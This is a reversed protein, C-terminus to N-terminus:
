KVTELIAHGVANAVDTALVGYQGHEAEALRGALGHVYVAAVAAFDPNIGQAMFATIIGTLVDGSGPTALAPTGTSNFFTRGDPRVVATYRGKLVIIVKLRRAEEIAKLLRAEATPQAGFIRDFEGAHPTLVSGEPIFNLLVQRRSICNLADADLVVPRKHTRLFRDVADITTPDTGIGPGIAVADFHHRLQIDSVVERSADPACLAEPVAIQLIDVGCRPSQVTVKGAGARLAGRSALAAAGMMGVSGAVILANGFDAKSASPDRPKLLPRVDRREVYYYNSPTNRIASQSLSLDVVRWDGVLHDNDAIMFSIHPFGVSMTLDAHIINRDVAEPNWDSHLGSPSDISVVSAGSENIRRVLMQFGGTLPGRLGSGFLGDVVLWRETIDPIAFRDVIECLQIDPVAELLMDRATLAEPSLKNGGINFLFVLPKFGQEALLRAVALADAGNNGSGAFIATPTSPKWRRVIEAVVGEAVQEILQMATVDGSSLTLRDINRLADNTFIKMISRPYSRYLPVCFTTIHTHIVSSKTKLVKFLVM